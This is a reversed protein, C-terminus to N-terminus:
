SGIEIDDIFIHGTPRGNLQLAIRTINGLDLSPNLATFADVPIRITRMPCRKTAFERVDPYPIPAVAGARVTPRNGGDDLTVFFDMEVDPPNLTADEFFQGVRLAVVDSSGIAMGGTDSTYIVDPVTPPNWTL